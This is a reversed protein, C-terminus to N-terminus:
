LYLQGIDNELKLNQTKSYQVMFFQLTINVIRVSGLRALNLKMVTLTVVNPVHFVKKTGVTEYIM